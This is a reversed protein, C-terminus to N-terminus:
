KQFRSSELYTQLIIVASVEDVLAKDQRKKKKVGGELIAQHALKSTFREDVYEVPILPFMEKLKHVFPEILRANESPQFNMQRPYGVIFLDVPEKEVYRKLFDSLESTPVTTVGNATIRLVDTAAIGTRKKGYDISVIRGM